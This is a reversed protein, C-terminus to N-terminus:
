RRALRRAAEASAASEPFRRGVEGYAARAGDLDGLRELVEGARLLADPTKNGQPYERVTERFAALASELENRALRSEGIWFRANDGLDTAAYAALFREFTEESEVYRGQHYQSYGQDYVAQAATTIRTPSAVPAASPSAVPASRGEDGVAPPPDAAAVEPPPSDEDLPEELDSVEIVEVRRPPPVTEEALGRPANARAEAAAREAAERAVRDELALIQRRLGDIEAQDASSQQQLELV